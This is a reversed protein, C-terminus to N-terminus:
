KKAEQLKLPHLRYLPKHVPPVDVELEIKFQHGRCIPPLGSLLEEPFIDRYEKLIAKVSELLDQCQLQASDLDSITGNHKDKVEEVRWVFGIFAQTSKQKQLM